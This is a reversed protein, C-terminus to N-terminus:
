RYCLTYGPQPVPFSAPFSLISSSTLGLLPHPLLPQQSDLSDAHWAEGIGCKMRPAVPMWWLARPDSGAKVSVSLVSQSKLYIM